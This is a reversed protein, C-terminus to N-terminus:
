GRENGHKFHGTAKAMLLQLEQSDATQAQRLFAAAKKPSLVKIMRGQYSIRVSGDKTAMYSFPEELLRGRCDTAMKEKNVM